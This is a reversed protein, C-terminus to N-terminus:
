AVMMKAEVITEAFHAVGASKEALDTIGTFWPPQSRGTTWELPIIMSPPILNRDQAFSARATRKPPGLVFSM